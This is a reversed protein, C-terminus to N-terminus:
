LKSISTAGSTVPQAIRIGSISAAVRALRLLATSITARLCM